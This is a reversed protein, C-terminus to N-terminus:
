PRQRKIIRLKFQEILQQTLYLPVPWPQMYCQLCKYLDHKKVANILLRWQLKCDISLYHSRLAIIEQHTISPLAMLATDSNRLQLLDHESHCASLSNKRIVSIYGQAPVLYLRAGLAMARTYLEYDEGLRMKENYRINHHDLFAKSILPKIFGLESRENHRKSINSLIFDTTSIMCPLKLKGNLLLKRPGDLNAEAVQWMDDAIMEANDAYALIGAIRGPLFYDDSDLISIWSSTCISLAKNRAAAPGGNVSLAITKLRGSDDDATRAIDLTHDTSADDVVIVESVAPEALASNIARLITTEANYAAIIVAVSHAQM